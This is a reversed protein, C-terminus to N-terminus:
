MMLIQKAYRVLDKGAETLILRQKVRKFLKVNYESELEKIAQSVSPQALYMEKATKTVNLNKAVNIFISLQRINM